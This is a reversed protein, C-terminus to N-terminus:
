LPEFRAPSRRLATPSSFRPPVRRPEPFSRHPPAGLRNIWGPLGHTDRSPAGPDAPALVRRHPTVPTSCRSPEPPLVPTISKLSAASTPHRSSPTSPYRPGFLPRAGPITPRNLFAIGPRQAPSQPAPTARLLPRPSSPSGSRHARRPLSPSLRRAPPCQSPDPPPHAPPAHANRQSTLPAPPSPPSAHRRPTLSSRAWTPLRAARQAPLTFHQGTRSFPLHAPRTPAAWPFSSVRALTSLSGTVLPGPTLAPPPRPPTQSM